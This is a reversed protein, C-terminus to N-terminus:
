KNFFNTIRQSRDSATTTIGKQRTKNSTASRTKRQSPKEPTKARSLGKSTKKVPSELNEDDESRERKLGLPQTPSEAEPGPMPANDETSPEEITQRKEEEDKELKTEEMKVAVEEHKKKIPSQSNSFFNAINSKNEASAVPIIFAPSNNGVKGVEKSVAYCELEGPYPKLLSQLEKSWEWRGPDLWTRIQKSDDLIVPM